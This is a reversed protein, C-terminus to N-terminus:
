RGGNAREGGTLGRHIASVQARLILGDKRRRVRRNSPLKRRLAKELTTM